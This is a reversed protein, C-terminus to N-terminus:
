NGDYTGGDVLQAAVGDPYWVELSITWNAVDAVGYHNHKVALHRLIYGAEELVPPVTFSYLRPLTNPFITRLFRYGGNAYFEGLLIKNLFSVESPEYTQTVRVAADGIVPFEFEEWQFGPQKTGLSSWGM